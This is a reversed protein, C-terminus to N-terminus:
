ECDWGRAIVSNHPIKWYCLLLVVIEEQRGHMALNIASYGRSLNEETKVTAQICKGYFWQAFTVELVWWWSWWTLFSQMKTQKDLQQKEGSHSSWSENWSNFFSERGTTVLRGRSALLEKVPPSCLQSLLRSSSLLEWSPVNLQSPTCCSICWAIHKQPETKSLCTVRRHALKFKKSEATICCLLYHYNGWLALFM